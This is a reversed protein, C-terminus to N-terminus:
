PGAGAVKGKSQPPSSGKAQAPSSAKPRPHYAGLAFSKISCGSRVSQSNIFGMQFNPITRISRAKFVDYITRTNSDIRTGSPASHQCVVEIDKVDYDSSNDFTFSATLIGFESKSWKYDALQLSAAVREKVAKSNAAVRSDLDDAATNVLPAPAAQDQTRSSVAPALTETSGVKESTTGKYLVVGLIGIVSIAAATKWGTSRKAPLSQISTSVPVVAQQPAVDHGCYRCVIAERKICEACHPCVRTESSISPEMSPTQIYVRKGRTLMALFGTVVAGVLWVFLIAGTGLATGIAAGARGAESTPQDGTSLLHWYLWLWSFMLLNLGFFLLLFLWGFFGRRRVEEQVIKGM